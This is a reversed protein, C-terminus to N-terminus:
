DLSALVKGEEVRDGIDVYIEDLFGGIKSYLSASEIGEVTGPVEITYALDKPEVRVVEVEAPGTPGATVSGTQKKGMKCSDAAFLPPLFVAMCLWLTANRQSRDSQKSSTKM